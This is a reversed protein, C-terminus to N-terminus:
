VRIVVKGLHSQGVLHSFAERAQEFDLVRDIVPRVNHASILRNMADFDDRSGVLLGQVRLGNMFVPTLNPPNADGALVGLLVILGGMACARISNALSGAGGVEIVIDVGEGGSLRKVEKGWETIQKYNILHDAGLAKARALKDDDSSTVFVEAGVTKAFQLAFISVGGTGLILVRQGPLLPEFKFLANYATLAACPLTAAEVFDIAKPIRVLGHESFVALERLLGDRPGGLTSRLREVTPRGAIWDQSFTPMVRDGPAFRTVRPGVALVEGAGDSCPVLPLAQRPNYSGKVMLHDRYNLSVARIRVLVEGDGPVPDPLEVLELNDYGFSKIQYARM